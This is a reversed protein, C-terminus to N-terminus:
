TPYCSTQDQIKLTPLYAQTKINRTGSMHGLFCVAGQLVTKRLRATIPFYHLSITFSPRLTQWQLYIDPYLMSLMPLFVLTILYTKRRLRLAQPISLSILIILPPIKYPFLSPITLPFSTQSFIPGKSALLRFSVLRCEEKCVPSSACSGIWNSGYCCFLTEAQGPITYPHKSTWSEEFRTSISVYAWGLVTHAASEPNFSLHVMEQENPSPISPFGILCCAATSHKIASRHPPLGEPADWTVSSILNVFPAYRLAQLM